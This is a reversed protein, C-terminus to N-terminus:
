HLYGELARRYFYNTETFIFFLFFIGNFKTQLDLVSKTKSSYFIRMKNVKPWSQNVHLLADTLKDLLTSCDVFSSCHYQILTLASFTFYEIFANASNEFIAHNTSYSFDDDSDSDYSIVNSGSNLADNNYTLLQLEVSSNKPLSHIEVFRFLANDSFFATLTNVSEKLLSFYSSIFYVTISFVFEPSSKVIPLIASINALCQSLEVEQQVVNMTAPFLGIIGAMQM